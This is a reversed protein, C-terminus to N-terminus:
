TYPDLPGSAHEPECDALAAVVRRLVETGQAGQTIAQWWERHVAKVTVPVSSLGLYQAMALRHLGRNIKLLRGERTVAVDLTDKGRCPLRVYLLRRM